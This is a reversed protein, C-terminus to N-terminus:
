IGIVQRVILAAVTVAVTVVATVALPHGRGDPDELRAIHVWTVVYGLLSTLMVGDGSTWGMLDGIIFLYVLQFGIVYCAAPRGWTVWGWRTWREEARREGARVIPPVRHTSGAPRNGAKRRDKKRGRRRGTNNGV